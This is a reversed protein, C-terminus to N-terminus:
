TREVHFLVNLHLPTYQGHQRARHEPDFEVVLVLDEGGDGAFHAFTKDAEDDAVAHFHFHGRVVEVLRPDNPPDPSLGLSM